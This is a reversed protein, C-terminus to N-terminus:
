NKKNVLKMAHGKFWRYSTIINPKPDSLSFFQFVWRTHMLSKLWEMVTIDGKAILNRAAKLDKYLAWMYVNQRYSTIKETEKGTLFCYILYSPDMGCGTLLPQAASYRANIEILKLKGNRPDKKFEIVALGTFNFSRFYKDGEKATEPLWHAKHFSASGFDPTRRIISKTFEFLVNGEKDYHACYSSLMSDPGPIYESIMFEFGNDHALQAKELLEQKNDVLFFKLGNFRQQFLHSYHPRIAAPYEVDDAIEVVAEMSETHWFQPAAIGAEKALQLAAEKDLMAEQQHPQHVDLLYLEDLEERHQIVFEIADDSCLFLVSGKLEESKEGLLLEKYHDYASKNEPIPYAKTCYKSAYFPYISSAAIFVPIGKKGLSRVMSLTNERGGLIIVPTVEKNNNPTNNM